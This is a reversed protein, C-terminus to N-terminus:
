PTTGQLPLHRGGPQLRAGSRRHPAHPRARVRRAGREVDRGLHRRLRARRVRRRADRAGGGVGGAGAVGAARVPRTRRREQLRLRRARAVGGALRERAPADRQRRREPHARAGRPRRAQPRADRVGGPRRAVAGRALRRLQRLLHAAALRPLLRRDVREQGRRVGSRAAQAHERGAAPLRDQHRAPREREVAAVHRRRRADRRRPLRRQLRDIRAAARRM